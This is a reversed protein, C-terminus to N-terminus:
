RFTVQGVRLMEIHISIHFLLISHRSQGRERLLVTKICEAQQNLRTSFAHGCSLDGLREIDCGVRQGKMEIAQSLGTEDRDAAVTARHDVRCAEFRHISQESVQGFITALSTWFL